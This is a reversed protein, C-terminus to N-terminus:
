SRNESRVEDILDQVDSEKMDADRAMQRSENILDKFSDLKPPSIVKMLINEGDAMVMLKSSESIGLEQRIRKPIVVQGKTSVSTLEVKM